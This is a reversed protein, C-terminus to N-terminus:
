IRWGKIARELPLSILGGASTALLQSGDHVAVVEQGGGDTALMCDGHMCLAWKVPEGLIFSLAHELGGAKAIVKAAGLESDWVMGAAALKAKTDLDSIADIVRSAFTACDNQGWAFPEHLAKEVEAHYLPQWHDKRMTLEGLTRTRRQQNGM